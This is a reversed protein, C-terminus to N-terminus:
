VPLGHHVSVDRGFGGGLFDLSAPIPDGLVDPALFLDRDPAFTDVVTQVYVLELFLSVTRTVSARSALTLRAGPTRSRPPRSEGGPRLQM